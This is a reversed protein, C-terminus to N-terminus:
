SDLQMLYNENVILKKKILLNDTDGELKYCYAHIFNLLEVAEINSYKQDLKAIKKYVQKTRGRYALNLIQNLESLETLESNGAKGKTKKFYLNSKDLFADKWQYHDNERGLEQYALAVQYNVPDDKRNSLIPKLSENLKSVDSPIKKFLDLYSKPGSFGTREVLVDGTPDVIVVKPISKVGYNMAFNKNNDIDIKLLVVNRSIAAFDESEWLQLDMDRCPRCWSAWFDIIILKGEEVAFSQASSFDRFWMNQSYAHNSLFIFLTAFLLRTM